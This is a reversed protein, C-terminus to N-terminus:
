GISVTELEVCNLSVFFIVTQNNHWHRWVGEETEDTSGLWSRSMFM